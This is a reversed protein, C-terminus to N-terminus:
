PSRSPPKVGIVRGPHRAGMRREERALPDPARVDGPVPARLVPRRRHLRGGSRRRERRQARGPRHPVLRPARPHHDRRPLRRRLEEPVRRGDAEDRRALRPRAPHPQVRGDRLDPHRAGLERRAGGRLRRHGGALERPRRRAHRGAGRRRRGDDHDVRGRPRARIRDRFPGDRPRDRAPGGPLGGAHPRLQEPDPVPVRRLLRAHVRGGQGRAHERQRGDAAVGQHTPRHVRVLAHRLRHAPDGGGVRRARPRVDDRRGRERADARLGGRAGRGHRDVQAHRDARRIDLQLHGAAGRVAM